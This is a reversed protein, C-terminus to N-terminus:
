PGEAGAVSTLRWSGALPTLTHRHRGEKTWLGQYKNNLEREAALMTPADAYQRVWLEIERGARIPAQAHEKFTREQYRPHDARNGMKNKLANFTSRMRVSLRGETKGAKMVEGSVVMLYVLFGQADRDIQVRLISAPDPFVTGARDFGMAKLEESSVMM